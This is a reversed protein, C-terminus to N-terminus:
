IGGGAGASLAGNEGGAAGQGGLVARRGQHPGRLTRASGRGGGVSAGSIFIGCGAGAGM